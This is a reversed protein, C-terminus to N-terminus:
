LQGDPDAMRKMVIQITDSDVGAKRMLRRAKEFDDSDVADLFEDVKGVLALKELVLTGEFDSEAMINKNLRAAVRTM